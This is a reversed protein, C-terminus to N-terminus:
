PICEREEQQLNLLHNSRGSPDCPESFRVASKKPWNLIHCSVTWNCWDKLLVSYLRHPPVQCHPLQLSPRHGQKDRTPNLPADALLFPRPLDRSRPPGLGLATPTPINRASSSNSRPERGAAAGGGMSTPHFSGNTPPSPRHASGRSCSLRSGLPPRHPSAAPPYPPEALRM